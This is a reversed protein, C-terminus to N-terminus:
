RSFLEDREAVIAECTKSADVRTSRFYSATADPDKVVSTQMNLIPNDSGLVVQDTNWDALGDMREVDIVGDLAHVDRQVVYVEGDTIGSIRVTVGPHGDEDQDWVQPDDIDTPLPDTEPNALHVGRLQLDPDQVYRWKGEALVLSGTRETVGLSRVFADPIITAVVPTGNDVEIACPEVQMTLSAGTRQVTVRQLTTTSGNTKGVAPVDNISAYFLVQAWTGEVAPPQESSTEGAADASTGGSGGSAAADASASGASGSDDGGM